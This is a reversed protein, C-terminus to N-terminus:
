HLAWILQWLDVEKRINQPYDDPVCFLPSPQAGMPGVYMRGEESMSDWVPADKGTSYGGIQRATELTGAGRAMVCCLCALILNHVSM